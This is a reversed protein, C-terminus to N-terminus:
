YEIGKRAKVGKQYPHKVARMDTVLDALDILKKFGGRGTLVLELASHKAEILKIVEEQSILGLSCATILEDLIILHYNNQSVEKLALEYGPRVSAALQEQTAKPKTVKSQGFALLKIQPHDQFFNAEGSKVSEKMFQIILVKFGQGAARVALGLAATTKGKGEGTYLHVLGKAVAM